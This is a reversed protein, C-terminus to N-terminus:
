TREAGDPLIAGSRGNRRTVPTAPIGHVFISVTVALSAAPWIEPLVARESAVIAYYISAVGMPGFWGLFLAESRSLVQPFLPRLLLWWPLRRLFVLGAAFALGRWGLEMWEAVPLMAGFVVFVPLDFFRGIAEQAHEHRTEEVDLSPKIALGAVFVALIGDSGILRVGSVVTLSLALVITVISHSDSFPQRYAWLLLKGALRGCLVGIAVAACVEWLLVRLLWERLAEEPAAQILLVPLLVLLLAVGDNAGSEATLLNRTRAPLNEEAIRGSTISNAVVPDTPCLCAGLVCAPLLPLGLAVAAIVSGSFAMLPLGIGIATAIDRWSRRFYNAPLRIAAGMVAIGVTVHSIEALFPDPRLGLTEPDLLKFAYPGILFGILLCIVTESVWMRNKVYGAFVGLVLVTGAAILLSLDVEWM